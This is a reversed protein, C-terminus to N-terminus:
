GRSALLPPRREREVGARQTAAGSALVTIAAAITLVGVHESLLAASWVLTLVPQALQVQGVKAV